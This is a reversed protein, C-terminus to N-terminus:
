RPREEATGPEPNPALDIPTADQFSGQSEGTQGLLPATQASVNGAADLAAVSYAYTSFPALGSDTFSTGSTVGVQSGNRFVRYGTVAVNDSSPNWVLSIAQATAVTVRLGTPVAPPTGDTGRRLYLVADGSFPPTFAQSSGAVSVVGTQVIAGSVPNFWEFAFSGAGTNVSFGGSGSRWVLYEQGPNALCYGASTCATTQPVMHALDIREAYTRTQGLSARIPEWYPDPTSGSPANRGPWVVLYPDMFATNNGSLFNRWVWSRQGAPGDGQINGYYYSHDTDNIIVKTGSATPFREVPSIWDAPSNFLTSDSGGSYQFTMGVPHQKPKGAEYQKILDIMHYQWSTSYSGAENAIEYLVNDLDNVTDIVRRLYAEQVATVAANTLSQSETGGSAIANVNNGSAFPFGDSSNRNFQPGYGDWLMIAVYIGRDRAAIVRSRLRAFYAADLQSLNFRPKGDTATGPGTRPWPFPSKYWLETSFGHTSHPLEWSWLRFFNHHHNELFNLFGTYDFAPPPDTTGYDKLNMWNHSGTLYVARGSGDTFYRPNSALRVLPGTAGIAPLTTASAASSAPSSNGAADFASVTYTYTTAGTLNADAYTTATTTAALSGNRLVNYGAIGVNDTSASWSLDIRSSSVATATLGVPTSPPLTDSSTAALAQIESASLARAFIRVEDIKGHFERGALGPRRGVSVEVSSDRQSGTVAGSSSGDNLQGNWYVHLTQAAADYVGAVHYWQGTQILATGYRIMSVGASNTLKFGITRAGTDRTADLQFGVTNGDRKSIIAADDIPFATPNIWAALTLSGTIRLSAGNGLNVYDDLGDFALANGVRGTTWTPGGVLTGTNGNGSADATTGGSGEQFSYAAAAGAVQAVAAGPATLLWASLLIRAYRAPGQRQM